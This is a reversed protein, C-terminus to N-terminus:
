KVQVIPKAGILHVQVTKRRVSVTSQGPWAPWFASAPFFSIVWIPTKASPLNILIYQILMLHSHFLALVFVWCVASGCFLLSVLWFLALGLDFNTAM